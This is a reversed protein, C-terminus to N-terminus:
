NITQSCLPTTTLVTVECPFPEQNSNGNPGKQTSNAHEARTQTPEKQTRRNGDDLGQALQHSQITGLLMHSHPHNNTGTISQRGTWPLQSLSWGRRLGSNSQAPTSFPHIPLIVQCVQGYYDILVLIDKQEDTPLFSVDLLIVHFVCHLKKLFHFVSSLDKVHLWAQESSKHKHSANM